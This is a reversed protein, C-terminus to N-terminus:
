NKILRANTLVKGSGDKVQVLLLGNAFKVLPIQMSSGAAKQSWLLKGEASIINVQMSIGLGSVTALSHAPNPFVQLSPGCHPTFRQVPSYTFSGDKDVMKLRFLAPQRYGEPKYTYSAGNAANRSNVTGIKTFQIGDASSEIDYRSGQHETVTQWSLVATCSSSNVNFSNLTVPLTFSCVISQVFASADAIIKSIHPQMAPSQHDGGAITYLENKLGV